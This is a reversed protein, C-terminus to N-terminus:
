SPGAAATKLTSISAMLDRCLTEIRLDIRYHELPPTNCMISCEHVKVDSTPTKLVISKDMKL